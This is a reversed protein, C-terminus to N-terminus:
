RDKESARVEYNWDGRFRSTRIRLRKMATDSVSKGVVYRRKDLKARVKLGAKTTTGQILAVVAERSVLPRGRWSNTIQSFLRHEIKNWKSTGPPFHCVSVNIGTTDAFRQLEARWLRSRSGNSGGGDATVLLQTATPYAIKGMERWWRELTAVAFEATDHDVGVSVWAENRATDYVGYPIVKGLEKDIFDHVRVGEPQGKPQWEHGGNKFDGILEKKKTDVSVVPQGRKMFARATRDIHEFQANRDPSQMGERTKRVVQLSYGLEHLLRGVKTASVQHGKAVLEAALKEKSKCTWRLRSEPDGRTTPDVLADLDSLLTPDKETLSPRGAGPRRVRQARAPLVPPNAAQEALDRIGARIRAKSIGTAAVVAAIGGHGLAEAESAAWLRTVREDMVDRLQAYKARIRDVSFM